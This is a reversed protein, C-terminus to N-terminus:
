LLGTALLLPNQGAVQLLCRHHPVECVPCVEGCGLPLPEVDALAACMDGQPLPELDAPVAARELAAPTPRETGQLLLALLEQALGGPSYV